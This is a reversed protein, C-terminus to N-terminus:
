GSEKRLLYFTAIKITESLVVASVFVLFFSAPMIKFFWPFISLSPVLFLLRFPVQICSLWYSYRWGILFLVFSFLISVNLFFSFSFVILAYSGQDYYIENFYRLDDILPTRGQSENLWIFRAIYLFDFFAWLYLVFSRKSIPKM